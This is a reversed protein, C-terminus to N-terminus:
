PPESDHLSTTVHYSDDSHFSTDSTEGTQHGAALRVQKYLRKATDFFPLLGKNFEDQDHLLSNSVAQSLVLEYHKTGTTPYKNYTATPIVLPARLTSDDAMARDLIARQADIHDVGADHVVTYILVHKKTIELNVIMQNFDFSFVGEHDVSVDVDPLLSILREELFMRDSQKSSSPKRKNAAGLSAQNRIRFFSFM